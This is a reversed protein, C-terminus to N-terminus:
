LPSLALAADVATAALVVLLLAGGHRPAIMRTLSLNGLQLALLPLASVALGSAAGTIGGIRYGLQTALLLLVLAAPYIVVGEVWPRATTSLSLPMLWSAVVLSPTAVLLLRVAGESGAFRPYFEDILWPGAVIGVATGAGVLVALLCFDRTVSRSMSFAGEAAFRTVVRPYYFQALNGVAGVILCVVNSGFAFRGLEVQSTEFSVMWRNATMYFAWVLSTVLLPAGQALLSWARGPSPRQSLALHMKMQLLSALALYFVALAGFCGAIGGVIIGGPRAIALTVSCAINVVAFARRRSTARYVAAPGLVLMSLLGATLSLVGAGIGFPLVNGAGAGLLIATGCVFAVAAIYLRLWLADGIFSDMEALRGASLLVPVRRDILQSLGFDFILGYQSLTVVIAYEGFRAPGLLAPLSLGVLANVVTLAPMMAFLLVRRQGFLRARLPALGTRRLDTIDGLGPRSPTMGVMMPPNRRQAYGLQGAM